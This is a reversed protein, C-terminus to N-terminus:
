AIASSSVGFIDIEAKKRSFLRANKALQRM